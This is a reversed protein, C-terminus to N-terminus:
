SFEDGIGRSFAGCAARKGCLTLAEGGCGVKGEPAPAGDWLRGLVVAAVQV